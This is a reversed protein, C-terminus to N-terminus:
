LKLRTPTHRGEASDKQLCRCGSCGMARLGAGFASFDAEDYGRFYAGAMDCAIYREIINAFGDGFQLRKARRLAARTYNLRARQM